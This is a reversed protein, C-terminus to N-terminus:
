AKEKGYAFAMALMRVALAFMGVGMPIHLWLVRSGGVAMQAGTLVLAVLGIVILRKPARDSIALLIAAIIWLLAAFLVVAANAVHMNLMALDGTVFLGAFIAQGMVALAFSVGALRLGWLAV